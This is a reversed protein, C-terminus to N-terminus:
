RYINCVELDKDGVKIRRKFEQTKHEAAWKFDGWLYRLHIETKVYSFLDKIRHGSGKRVCVWVTEEMTKEMETFYVERWGRLIIYDPKMREEEGVNRLKGVQKWRWEWWGTGALM